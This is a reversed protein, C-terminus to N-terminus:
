SSPELEAAPLWVMGAILDSLAAAPDACRGAHAPSTQIITSRPAVLWHFREVQTLAGLPGAAMGGQCVLSITELHPVILEADCFPFLAALRARDIAFEAGLFGRAKCYLIAGVNLFEGREVRPVVRVIAYEYTHEAPAPESSRPAPM